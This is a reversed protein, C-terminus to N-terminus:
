CQGMVCWRNYGCRSGEAWPAEVPLCMRRQVDYCHLQKCVPFSHGCFQSEKQRLAISCQQNLTFNKGPKSRNTLKNLKE